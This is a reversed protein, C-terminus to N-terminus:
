TPAPAVRLSERSANGLPVAWLTVQKIVVKSQSDERNQGM